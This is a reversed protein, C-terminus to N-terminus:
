GTLLAPCLYFFFVLYQLIFYKCAILRALMEYVRLLM